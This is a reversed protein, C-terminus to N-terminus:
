PTKTTAGGWASLDTLDPRLEQPATKGRYPTLLVSIRTEGKPVNLLILLIVFSAFGGKGKRGTKEGKWRM